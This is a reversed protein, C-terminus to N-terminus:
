KESFFKMVQPLQESLKTPLVVYHAKALQDGIYSHLLVAAGVRKELSVHSFQAVFSGILGALTDGTGGTAM